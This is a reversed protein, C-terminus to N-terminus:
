MAVKYIECSYLPIKRTHPFWLLPSVPTQISYSPGILRLQFSVFSFSDMLCVHVVCGPMVWVPQLSSCQAVCGLLGGGLQAGDEQRM